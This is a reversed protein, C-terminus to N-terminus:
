LPLCLVKNHMVGFTKLVDMSLNITNLETTGVPSWSNGTDCQALNTWPWGLGGPLAEHHIVGTLGPSLTSSLPPLTVTLRM